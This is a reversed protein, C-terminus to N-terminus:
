KEYVATVDEFDMVIYTEGEFYIDHGAFRVFCIKDGVAAPAEKGDEHGVQLVEGEERVERDQSRIYIGGKTLEPMELRKILLKNALVRLKRM